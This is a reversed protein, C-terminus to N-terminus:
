LWHKRAIRKTSSYSTKIIAKADMWREGAQRQHISLSFVITTQPISLSTKTKEVSNNKTIFHVFDGSQDM